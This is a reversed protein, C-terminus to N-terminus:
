AIELIDFRSFTAADNRYDKELLLANDFRLTHIIKSNFTILKICCSREFITQCLFNHEFDFLILILVNIM